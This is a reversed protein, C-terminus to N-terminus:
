ARARKDLRYRATAAALKASLEDLGEAANHSRRSELM